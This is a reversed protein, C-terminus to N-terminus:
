LLLLPAPPPHPERPRAATAATARPVGACRCRPWRDSAGRFRQGLVQRASSPSSGRRGRSRRIPGARPPRAPTAPSAGVPSAGDILTVEALQAVFQLAHCFASISSPSCAAHTVCKAAAAAGGGRPDGGAAAGGDARVGAPVAARHAETLTQRPPADGDDATPLLSELDRTTWSRATGCARSRRCTSRCCAARRCCTASCASTRAPTSCRAWAPRPTTASSAASRADARDRVPEATSPSADGRRLRQAPRQQQTGAGLNVWEGVYAHGLFGDHYKNSHGHVISAEVEGGVRCHPGLTTGAASRRGSCTRGPGSTARGRWGAHVADRGRERDIVVPGSRRTPWSSRISQAGDPRRLLRDRPGVLPSGGDRPAAAGAGALWADLAIQEGNHDVLEWLHRVLTPRRRRPAAARRALPGPVDDLADLRLPPPRSPPSSPTPSRTTSSASAPALRCSRRRGAAPPLWRANVLVVPGPALWRPRQRSGPHAAPHVDALHPRVLAARRSAAFPPVAERGPHRLRVAPRLRPPHPHAARPGPRLPGRLPLRAHDVGKAGAPRGQRAIILSLRDSEVGTQRRTPNACATGSTSADEDQTHRNTPNDRRFSPPVSAWSTTGAHSGPEWRSTAGAPPEAAGAMASGAVAGSCGSTARKLGPLTNRPPPQILSPRLQRAAQRAIRRNRCWYLKRRGAENMASLGVLRCPMLVRGLPCPGRRTRSNESGGGFRLQIRDGSESM